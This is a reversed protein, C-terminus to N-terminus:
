HRYNRLFTDAGMKRAQYDIMYDMAVLLRRYRDLNATDLRSLTEVIAELTSLATIGPSKRLTYRPPPVQSLQLRPLHQLAPQELIIRKSRRWTADIFVLTSQCALEPDCSEVTQANDGPYVLIAKDPLVSALSESGAEIDGPKVPLMTVHQLGLRAINATNLAHRSEQPDQFVLVPVINDVAQILHCLCRDEALRCESCQRRAM